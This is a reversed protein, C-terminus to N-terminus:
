ITEGEAKTVSETILDMMKGHWSTSKKSDVIIAFETELIKLVRLLEPAAAILHKNAALEGQGTVNTIGISLIIKGNDDVILGKKSVHWPGPSHKSAQKKKKM